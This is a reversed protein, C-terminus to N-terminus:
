QAFLLWVLTLTKLSIQQKIEVRRNLTQDYGISLLDCYIRARLYLSIRVRAQCPDLVLKYLIFVCTANLYISSPHRKHSIIPYYDVM